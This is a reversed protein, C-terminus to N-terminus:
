EAIMRQSIRVLIITAQAASYADIDDVDGHTVKQSLEWTKRMFARLESRDRGPMHSEVFLDFIAKADALKPPAVGDPLTLYQFLERGLDIQIERSRRGVDQWDDKNRATTFEEVLLSIRNNLNEWGPVELKPNPDHFVGEGKIHELQDLLPNLLKALYLRRSAWTPLEGNSYFGHWEGLSRWPFVPNVGLRRLAARNLGDIRRYEEDGESIILEGTGADQLFKAQLNLSTILEDLNSMM